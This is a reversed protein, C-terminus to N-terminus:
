NWLIIQKEKLLLIIYEPMQFDIFSKVKLYPVKNELILDPRIYSISLACSSMNNTRYLVKWTFGKGAFYNTLKTEYKQIV